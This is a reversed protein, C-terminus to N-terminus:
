YQRSINPFTQYEGNRGNRVEQDIIKKHLEQKNIILYICKCVKRYQVDTLFYNISNWEVGPFFLLYFIRIHLKPM